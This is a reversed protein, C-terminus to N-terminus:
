CCLAVGTAQRVLFLWINGHITPPLPSQVPGLVTARATHFGQEQARYGSVPLVPHSCRGPFVVFYRLSLVRGTGSFIASFSWEEAKRVETGATNGGWVHESQYQVMHNRFNSTLHHKTSMCARRTTSCRVARKWPKEYIGCRTGGMRTM